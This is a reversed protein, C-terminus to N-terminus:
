RVAVQAFVADVVEHRAYELVEVHFRQVCQDGRPRMEFKGAILVAAGRRVPDDGELLFEKRKILQVALGVVEAAHNVLIGAVLIQPLHTLFHDSPKLFVQRHALLARSLPLLGRLSPLCVPAPLTVAAKSSITEGEAGRPGRATSVRTGSGQASPVASDPR